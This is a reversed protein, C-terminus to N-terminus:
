VYRRLYHRMISASGSQITALPRFMKRGGHATREVHRLLPQAYGHPPGVELGERHTGVAPQVTASVAFHARRPIQAALAQSTQRPPVQRQRARHGHAQRALSAASAEEFLDRIDGRRVERVHGTHIQRYESQRRRLLRSIQPHTRADAGSGQDGAAGVDPMPHRATPLPM